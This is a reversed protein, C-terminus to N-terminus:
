GCVQNPAHGWAHFSTQFRQLFNEMKRSEKKCRRSGPLTRSQSVKSYEDVTTLVRLKRGQATADSISYKRSIEKVAVGSEAEKLIRVIQEENFRRKRM